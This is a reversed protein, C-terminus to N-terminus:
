QRQRMQRVARDDRFILILAIVLTVLAFAGLLFAFEYRPGAMYKLREPSTYVLPVLWSEVLPQLLGHYLPAFLVLVVLLKNWMGLRAVRWELAALRKQDETTM